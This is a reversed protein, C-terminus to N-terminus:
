NTSQPIYDVCSFPFFMVNSLVPCVKDSSITFKMWDVAKYDHAYQVQINTVFESKKLNITYSWAEYVDNVVYTSGDKQPYTSIYNPKKKEEKLELEEDDTMLWRIQKIGTDFGGYGLLVIRELRRFNNERKKKVPAKAKMEIAKEDNPKPAVQSLKPPM